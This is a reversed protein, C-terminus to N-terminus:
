VFLEMLVEDDEKGDIVVQRTLRGCERFGIGLYFAQARANTRRVQIALKRYGAERAFSATATWLHGVGRGRQAPLVFTGVQGVHAISELSSWRDLIQLGVIEPRENVAVYIVERPSLSELYSREQEVTWACDIASHVREAVVTALVAVIAAADDPLARRIRLSFGSESPESVVSVICWADTPRSYDGVPSLSRGWFDVIVVPASRSAVAECTM